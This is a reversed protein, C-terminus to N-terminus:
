PSAPIEPPWGGGLAKYLTVTEDLLRYRLDLAVQESQLLSREAELVQLQSLLGEEFQAQNVSQAARLDRLAADANATQGRRSALNILTNEVEQFAKIVTGRYQDAAIDAETQRVAVQRRKGPDFIPINIVPGGGLLWQSLLGGLSDSTSGGSPTTQSCYM